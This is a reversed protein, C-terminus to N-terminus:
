KSFKEVGGKSGEAGCSRYTFMCLTLASFIHKGRILRNKKKKRQAKRYMENDQLFVHAAQWDLERIHPKLSSAVPKLFALRGKM